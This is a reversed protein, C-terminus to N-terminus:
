DKGDSLIEKIIKIFEIKDDYSLFDVKDVDQTFKNVFSLKNTLM